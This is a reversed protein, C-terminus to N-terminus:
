LNRGRRTTPLAFVFVSRTLCFLLFGIIHSQKTIFTAYGVSNPARGYFDMQIVVLYILLTKFPPTSVYIFIFLTHQCNSGLFYSFTERRRFCVM